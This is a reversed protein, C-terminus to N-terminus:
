SRASCRCCSTSRRPRRRRHRARRGARDPQVRVPRLRPPGHGRLRRPEGRPRAAPGGRAGGRLQRVARRARHGTARMLRAVPPPLKSPDPPPPPPPGLTPPADKASHTARYEARAALEDASPGGSGAVLACMEDFGADVFHAPDDIRGARPSGAAPRSRPAACSERRGSTATSAASTACGTSCGRRASCSTSSTRTSRRAGQRPDRRDAGRRGIDEREPRSRPGSRVCCCTRAARARVARLHRLRRAPPQRRPRPLREDGRGGPRRARAAVRAGRGPRRGVRPAGACGRGRRIAAILGGAGGLSGGVGALRRAHPRAARGAAPGDLRRRPRPLRRDARGRERHLAHAPHDDGRPPRPLPRPVRGARRRLARRSRGGAARPAERDREAQVDRGVGAAARALAQGAM